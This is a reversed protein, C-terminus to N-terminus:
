CVGEDIEAYCHLREVDLLVLEHRSYSELIGEERLRAFAKHLSGRHIGLLSALDQQSIHPVIIGGERHHLYMGYLIRCVSTFASHIGVSCLQTFMISSKLSLSKLWNLMLEPYAKAFEQRVTDERRFFLAEVPSTCSFTSIHEGYVMPIDNFLSQEGLYFFVKEQGCFSVFSLKVLGKLVLFFGHAAKGQRTDLIHKAPFSVPTALHRVALWPSNINRLVVPRFALSDYATIPHM